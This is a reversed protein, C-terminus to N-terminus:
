FLGSNPILRLARLIEASLAGFEFMDDATQIAQRLFQGVGVFQEVKRGGLAVQVRGSFDLGVRGLEAAVDFM